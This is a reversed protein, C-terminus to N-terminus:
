VRNIADRGVGWEGSGVGWEGSGVGGFIIADFFTKWFTLIQVLAVYLQLRRDRLGPALAM